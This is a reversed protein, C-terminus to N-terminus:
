ARAKRRAGIRITQRNLEELIEAIAIERGTAVYFDGPILSQMKLDAIFADILDQRKAQRAQLFRKIDSRTEGTTVVAEHRFIADGLVLIPIGNHLASFASTSNILIMGSANAALKGMQGAAIVQVSQAPFGMQKAQRLIHRKLRAGNRELPHLKFVIQQKVPSDAQAELCANILKKTNWGRSATQIQSDHSVQLPVLVYGANRYLRSIARAETAHAATRRAMHAAWSWALPLPHEKARHFLNEESAGSFTDRSLYYLAGWFCQTRFSSIGPVPKRLQTDASTFMPSQDCRSWNTLPSHQNNGGPECTIYGSRLYGEELSIVNVGYEKAVRRAVQHIPRNAGFLIIAEPWNQAIDARFHAEWDSLDGAFRICNDHKAFLRDGANFTFRKVSFGQQSFAKYMEAFFPGVPGQLLVIKRPAGAISLNM